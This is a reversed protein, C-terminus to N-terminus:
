STAQRGFDNIRMPSPTLDDLTNEASRMGLKQLERRTAALIHEVGIPGGTPAALFAAHLAINQISGGTIPLRCTVASIGQAADSMIGTPFARSWIARREAANPLTFDIVFRLRRVFAHDINQKLNTTLITLGRFTELRQLLYAVEVNAHRDHADKVETRRGFIADAEDFLLVSGRCEAAEFVRDLNKETEGIYKSVTKSLDVQLLDVGVDNAVIQAAMTKGTGSPGSFLAAIGRGYAMRAAFGWEEMVRGEQLVHQTISELLVRSEEGIVIDDWGYVPEICRAGTPVECRSIDRASRQVLKVLTGDAGAAALRVAMSAASAYAGPELHVTASLRDIDEEALVLGTQLAASRWWASRQTATIEPASLVFSGAGRREGALDGDTLVIRGDDTERRVIDSVREREAATLDHTGLLLLTGNVLRGLISWDNVAASRDAGTELGTLNGVLLSMGVGCTLRSFWRKSPDGGVLQICAGDRKALQLQRIWCEEFPSLRPEPVAAAIRLEAGTAAAARGPSTLLLHTVVSPSPVLAADVTLSEPELCVLGKTVLSEPGHLSRRLDWATMDAEPLLQAMLTLSPRRRTLDDHLVGITTAYRGDIEPALVLCLFRLEEPSLAFADRVDSIVRPLRGGPAFLDNDCQRMRAELSEHGASRNQGASGAMLMDLADQPSVSWGRVGPRDEDDCQSLRWGLCLEIWRMLSDLDGYHTGIPQFRDADLAKADVVRVRNEGPEPTTLQADEVAARIAAALDEWRPNDMGVYALAAAMDILVVRRVTELALYERCISPDSGEMILTAKKDGIVTFLSDASDVTVVRFDGTRRLLRCLGETFTGDSFPGLFVTTKEM